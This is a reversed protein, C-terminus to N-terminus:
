VINALLSILASPLVLVIKEWKKSKSGLSGKGVLHLCFFTTHVSRSDRRGYDRRGDLVTDKYLRRGEIPGRLLGRLKNNM